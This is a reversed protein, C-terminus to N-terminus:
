IALKAMYHVAGIEVRQNGAQPAVGPSTFSAFGTVEPLSLM